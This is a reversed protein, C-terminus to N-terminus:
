IGNEAERLEDIIDIIKPLCDDASANKNNQASEALRKARDLLEGRQKSKSLFCLKEEFDELSKESKRIADLVGQRTIKAYEAIEGLSFDENYYLAMLDRRKPTLLSGYIDFLLIKRLDKSM